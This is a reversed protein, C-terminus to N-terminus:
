VGRTLFLTKVAVKRCCKRHSRWPRSQGMRNGSAVRPEKFGFAKFCLSVLSWDGLARGGLGAGRGAAALPQRVPRSSAACTLAESPAPAPPRHQEASPCGPAGPLWGEAGVHGDGKSFCRGHRLKTPASCPGALVGWPLAAPPLRPGAPQRRPRSPEAHRAAAAMAQSWAPSPLQQGSPVAATPEPGRHGGTGPVREATSALM